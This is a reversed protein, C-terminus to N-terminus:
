NYNEKLFYAEASRELEEDFNVDFKFNQIQWSNNPRYFVFTFRLPQREYKVIYSYLVYDAGFHRTTVCEYGHYDGLQSIANKLQIKLGVIVSDGTFYKNTSFLMDFAEDKKNQGVKEIFSEIKNTTEKDHKQDVCSTYGFISLLVIVVFPIKKM